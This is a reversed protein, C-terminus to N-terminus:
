KNASINTRFVPILSMEAKSAKRGQLNKQENTIFFAPGKTMRFGAKDALFRAAYCCIGRAFLRAESHCDQTFNKFKVV